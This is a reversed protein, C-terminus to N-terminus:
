LAHGFVVFAAGAGGEAGPAGAVVDAHGDGNVDAIAISAGLRDGGAAGLLIAGAADVLESSGPQSGAFLIFVAGRGDDHGPAGIALDELGDGDVDGTALATAAEDYDEGALTRQASSTDDVLPPAAGSTDCPSSGCLSSGAFVFVTGRSTQSGTDRPTGIILDADGSGDLDLWALSQGAGLRANAGAIRLAAGGLRLDSDGTDPAGYVRGVNALSSELDDYGPAGVLLLPAGSTPDVVALVASGAQDGSAEGFLARRSGAGSAPDDIPLLFRIAAGTSVPIPDLAKPAGILVTWGTAEAGAPLASLASGFGDGNSSGRLLVAAAQDLSATAGVKPLGGTLV